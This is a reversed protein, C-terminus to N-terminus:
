PQWYSGHLNLSAAKSNGCDAVVDVGNTAALGIYLIVRDLPIREPERQKSSDPAAVATLRVLLAPMSQNHVYCMWGSSSLSIIIVITIITIILITTDM